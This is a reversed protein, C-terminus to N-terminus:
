NKTINIYLFIAASPVNSLFFVEYIKYNFYSNICIVFIQFVVHVDLLLITTGRSYQYLFPIFALYFCASNRSLNILLKYQCKYIGKYAFFFFFFFYCETVISQSFRNVSYSYESVILYPFAIETKQEIFIWRFWCGRCLFMRAYKM